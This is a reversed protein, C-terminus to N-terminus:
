RLFDEVTPVWTNHSRFCLKILIFCLEPFEKSFLLRPRLFLTSPNRLQENNFSVGLWPNITQNARWRSEFTCVIFHLGLVLIGLGPVLLLLHVGLHQGLNLSTTTKRVRSSSRCWLLPLSQKRSKWNGCRAHSQSSWLFSSSLSLGLIGAWM